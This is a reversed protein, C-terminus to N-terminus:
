AITKGEASGSVEALIGTGAIKSNFDIGANALADQIYASTKFEQYSLEPNAHLHRRFAILKEFHKEALANIESYLVPNM